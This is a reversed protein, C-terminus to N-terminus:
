RRDKSLPMIVYGYNDDTECYAAAEGNEVDLTFTKDPQLVKLFDAVFRHDLRCVDPITRSLFVALAPQVDAFFALTAM